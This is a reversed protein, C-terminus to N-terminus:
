PISPETPSPPDPIVANDINVSVEALQQRDAGSTTIFALIIAQGNDAETTNILFSYQNGNNSGASYPGAIDNNNQELVVQLADTSNIEAEVIVEYQTGSIVAGATPSTISATPTIDPQANRDPSENNDAALIVVQEGAQSFGIINNREDYTTGSVSLYYTGATYGSTNWTSDATWFNAGNDRTAPFLLDGTMSNDESRLVFYVTALDRSNGTIYAQIIIAEGIIVEQGVAPNIFQVFLDSSLQAKVSVFLIAQTIVLAILFTKSLYNNIKTVM